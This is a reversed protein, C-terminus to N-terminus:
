TCNSTFRYFSPEGFGIVPDDAVAGRPQFPIDAGILIGVPALGLGPRLTKGYGPAAPAQWGNRLQAGDILLPCAGPIDVRYKM